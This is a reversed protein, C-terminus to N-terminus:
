GRIRSKLAYLEMDRRFSGYFFRLPEFREPMYTELFFAFYFIISCCLSPGWCSM